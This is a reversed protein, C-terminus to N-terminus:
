SCLERLEKIKARREDDLRKIEARLREIEALTEETVPRVQIGKDWVRFSSAANTWVEKWWHTAAEHWSRAGDSSRFGNVTHAECKSVYEAIVWAGGDHVQYLKGKELPKM